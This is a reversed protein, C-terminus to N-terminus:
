QFRSKGKFLVKLVKFRRRKLEQSLKFDDTIIVPHHHKLKEALIILSLDADSLDKSKIKRRLRDVEESHVELIEINILDIITQSISDKIENIVYNTTLLKAGISRLVQLNKLHFIASSDLIVVRSRLEGFFDDSDTVSNSM